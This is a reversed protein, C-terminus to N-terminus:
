IKIARETLVTLFIKKTLFTLILHKIVSTIYLIFRMHYIKDFNM